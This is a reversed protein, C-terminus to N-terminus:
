LDRLIFESKDEIYRIILKPIISVTSDQEIKEIIPENYIEEIKEYPQYTSKITQRRIKQYSRAKEQLRIKNVQYYEKAYQQIEKKHLQHYMKQYTKYLQIPDM